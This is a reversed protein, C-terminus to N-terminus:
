ENNSPLDSAAPRDLVVAPDLHPTVRQSQDVAVAPKAAVVPVAVEQQVDFPPCELLAPEVRPDVDARQGPPLRERFAAVLQVQELALDAHDAVQRPGDRGVTQEFRGTFPVAEVHHHDPRGNRQRDVAV